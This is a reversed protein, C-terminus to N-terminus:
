KQLGFFDMCLVYVEEEKSARVTTVYEKIHELMRDKLVRVDARSLSVVGSYHLDHIKERDLSELVQTRWNCHHRIIFPSDSGIRLLSSESTFHQGDPRALGAEVLFELIEAVKKSPLNLYQALAERTRLEPITLAIHIALYIWSSYFIQKHEESLKNQTGLRRTLNLRRDLMEQIQEAFYSKLPRNGARDKQVLLLFYHSDDRSHSFFENVGTAQELSLHAPGNIVRSIYTPQCSLANALASKLGRRATKDGVQSRLYAKYDSFDYISKAM